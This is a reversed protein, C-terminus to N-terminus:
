AAWLQFADASSSVDYTASAADAGAPCFLRNLGPQNALKTRVLLYCVFLAAAGPLVRVRGGRTM